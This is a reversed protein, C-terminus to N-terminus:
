CPQRIWPPLPCLKRRAAEFSWEQLETAAQGQAVEVMTAILRVLSDRARDIETTSPAGSATLRSVGDSIANMLYTFSGSSFSYGYTMATGMATLRFGDELPNTV